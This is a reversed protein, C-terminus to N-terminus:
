DINDQDYQLREIINDYIPNVINLYKDFNNKALDGYKELLYDNILDILEESSKEIEDRNLKEM